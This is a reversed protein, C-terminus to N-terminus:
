IQSQELMKGEHDFSGNVPHTIAATGSPVGGAAPQGTYTDNMVSELGTGPCVHPAAPPYTRLFMVANAVGCSASDDQKLAVCDVADFTASSKSAAIVVTIM